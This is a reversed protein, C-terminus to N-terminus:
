GGEAAAFPEEPATESSLLVVSCARGRWRKGMPSERGSDPRPDGRRPRGGGPADRDSLARQIRDPSM